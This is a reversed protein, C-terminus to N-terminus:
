SREVLSVGGRDDDIEARAACNNMRLASLSLM